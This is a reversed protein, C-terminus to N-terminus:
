IKITRGVDNNENKQIIKNFNNKAYKNKKYRKKKNKIKIPNIIYNSKYTDKLDNKIINQNINQDNNIHDNNQFSLLIKELSNLKKVLYIFLFIIQTFFMLMLCYFGINHFLIKINITLNYCKIIDLNFSLLNELFANTITKFKSIKINLDTYGKNNEEEQLFCPNCLCNAAMLNYNIGEYICGNQCFTANQYIDNRRDNIIIDKNDPINYPCCIDNFFDDEANFVDIRQKSFIKASEIDLEGPNGIYKMVKINEKCISLDLKTASYDYIELQTNKGLNFSKDGDYNYQSENNKLEMNLVILNEELPIKHYEKIVNTCNGLDIGSIGKKIQDEPNIDNSLLIMALFNTGNIVKSSNIYSIINNKIKNKFEILTVESDIEKSTIISNYNTNEIIESNIEKSTNISNYNTNETIESDFIKIQSNSNTNELIESDNVKIANTDMITIEQAIDSTSENSCSSCNYINPGNCSCSCNDHCFDFQSNISDFYWNIKKEDLSYCNNPNEPSKYYNNKCKICNHQENNSNNIDETCNHCSHYCYKYNITIQCQAIYAEDDEVTVSYDVTFSFNTSDNNTVTFGLIDTDNNILTRQSIRNNNLTFYGFEDFMSTIEFYYKNTEISFLNSIKELDKENNFINYNKNGCKPIYIYYEYISNYNNYNNMFFLTAYVNNNKITLYSNDGLISIEFEKIKEHTTINIKFCKIFDIFSCCFLYENNFKSIYCNNETFNNSSTFVLNDEGLIRYNCISNAENITIQIFKCTINQSKQSCFLKINNIYTDYLGFSSFRDFTYNKIIDLSNKSTDKPASPNIHYKLFYLEFQSENIVGCIYIEGEIFKCIVKYNKINPIYLKGYFKLNTTFILYDNKYYGYGIKDNQSNNISIFGVVQSNNYEDKEDITNPKYSIFPEYVISYLRKSNYVFNNYLNDAVFIITDDVAQNEKQAIINGSNKEIKLDKGITTVYYYDNNTYLIFPKKSNILFIPNQKIQPNAQAFLAIFLIYFKKM